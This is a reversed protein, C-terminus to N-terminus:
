ECVEPPVSNAALNAAFVASARSEAVVVVYVGHTAQPWAAVTQLLDDMIADAISEDVGARIVCHAYSM